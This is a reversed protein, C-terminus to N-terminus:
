IDNKKPGIQSKKYSAKVEKENNIKRQVQNVYLEIKGFLSDFKSDNLVTSDMAAKSMKEAFKLLKMAHRLTSSQKAQRFYYSAITDHFRPQKYESEGAQLDRLEHVLSDFIPTDFDENAGACIVYYIYNNLTYYYKVMFNTNEKEKQIKTKEKQLQDFARKTIKIAEKAYHDYKGFHEFGDSAEYKFQGKGQALWYNFKLFGVAIWSEYSKKHWPKEEVSKILEEIKTHRETSRHDLKILSSIYIYINSPNGLNMYTPSGTNKGIREIIKVILKYKRFVYLVAIGILIRDYDMESKKGFNDYITRTLDVKVPKLKESGKDYNELFENWFMIIRDEVNGKPPSFRTLAEDRLVDALRSKFLQSRKNITKKLDQPIFDIENWVEELFVLDNITYDISSRIRNRENVITKQLAEKNQVIQEYQLLKKINDSLIKRTGQEANWIKDFFNNNRFRKWNDEIRIIDADPATGKVTEYVSVSDKFKLLQSFLPNEETSQNEASFMADLVFYETDKLVSIMDGDETIITFHSKCLDGLKKLVDKTVYLIPLTSKHDNYEKIKECMICLAMADRLNNVTKTARDGTTLARDIKEFLDSELIELKNYQDDDFTVITNEGKDFLHRYRKEWFLETLVYNAKFIEETKLRIKKLYAELGDAKNEEKLKRLGGLKVENLFKEIEPPRIPDNPLLFTKGLQNRLEAAHPVLMKIDPIYGFYALSKVLFRDNRFALRDIDNYKNARLEWFGQIMRLVYYTDFYVEIKVGSKKLKNVAFQQEYKKGIQDIDGVKIQSTQSIENAMDAPAEYIFSHNSTAM